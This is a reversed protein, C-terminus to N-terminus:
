PHLLHVEEELSMMQTFARNMPVQFKQSHLMSSLEVHVCVKYTMNKSSSAKLTFVRDKEKDKFCGVYDTDNPVDTPSGEYQFVSLALWGGCKM